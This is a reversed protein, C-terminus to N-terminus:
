KTNRWEAKRAWRSLCPEPYKRFRTGAEHIFKRHAEGTALGFRKRARALAASEQRPMTVPRGAIIRLHPKIAM